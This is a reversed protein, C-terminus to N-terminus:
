AVPIEDATALRKPWVKRDNGCVPCDAEVAKDGARYLILIDDQHCNYCVGVM